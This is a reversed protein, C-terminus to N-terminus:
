LVLKKLTNQKAEVESFGSGMVAVTKQFEKSKKKTDYRFSTVEANCILLKENISSSRFTYKASAIWVGNVYKELNPVQSFDGRAFAKKQESTFKQTYFLPASTENKESIKESLVQTLGADIEEESFGLIAVQHAATGKLGNNLIDNIPSAMKKEANGVEKQTGDKNKSSHKYQAVLQLPVPKLPVQTIPHNGRQNFFEPSGTQNNAYWVQPNGTSDYFATQQNPSIQRFNEINIAGNNVQVIVGKQDLFETNCPVIEYKNHIWAMCNNKENFFLDYIVTFLILSSFIGLGLKLIQRRKGTWTKYQKLPKPKSKGNVIFDRRLTDEAVVDTPKAEKPFDQYSEKNWHTKFRSFPRPSFDILIAIVNLSIVNLTKNKGKLFESLSKFKNVKKEKIIRYADENQDIGYWDKITKIDEEPLNLKLLRLLENHVNTETPDSLLIVDGNRLHENYAKFIAKRYDKAEAKTM